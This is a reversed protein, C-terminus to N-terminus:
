NSKKTDHIVAGEQSRPVLTGDRNYARDAFVESATRLGKTKACDIMKSGALGMLIVDSDVEYVAEVIANALTEDKAAMNYM